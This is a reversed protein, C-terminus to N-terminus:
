EAVVTIQSIQDREANQVDSLCNPYKWSTDISKSVRELHEIQVTESFGIEECNINPPIPHSPCMMYEAWPRAM